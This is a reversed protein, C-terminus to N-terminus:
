WCFTQCSSKRQQSIKQGADVARYSQAIRSKRHAKQTTPSNQISNLLVCICDRTSFAIDWTSFAITLTSFAIDQAALRGWSVKGATEDAVEAKGSGQRGGM